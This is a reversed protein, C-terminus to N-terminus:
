KEGAAKPFLSKIYKVNEAVLTPLNGYTNDKQLYVADISDLLMLFARWNEEHIGSILNGFRELFSSHGVEFRHPKEHKVEHMGNVDLFDKRLEALVKQIGELASVARHALNQQEVTMM